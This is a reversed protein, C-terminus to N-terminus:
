SDKIMGERWKMQKATWLVLEYCEPIDGGSTNEADRVFKVLESVDTTFELVKM